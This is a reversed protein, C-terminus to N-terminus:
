LDLNLIDSFKNIIYDYKKVSGFGYSAFVFPIGAFEASDADGQTDGVYVANKLNNREIVLKNNEGKSLDTNGYCEIDTFYKATDHAAFFSEIYGKQCNSVVFLKYQGSLKELVSKLDPYLIGGHEALYENELECCKEMLETQLSPSQGPFLKEAIAGMQLGMCGHLNEATIVQNVEPYGALVQNWTECIGETSDWLTGDLDFIISDHKM